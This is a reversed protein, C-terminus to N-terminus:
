SVKMHINLDSVEAPCIKCEYEMPGDHDKRDHRLYKGLNTFKLGCDPCIFYKANNVHAMKHKEMRSPKRTWFDCTPRPCELLKEDKKAILRFHTKPKPSIPTEPLQIRLSTTTTPEITTLLLNQTFDLNNKSQQQEPLPTLCVIDDDDQDPDSTTVELKKVEHLSNHDLQPFHLIEENEEFSLGNFLFEDKKQQQQQQELHPTKSAIQPTKSAEINFLFPDDKSITVRENESLFDVDVEKNTVKQQQQESPNNLNITPLLFSSVENQHVEEVVNKTVVNDHQCTTVPSTVQDKTTCIIEEYQCGKSSVNNQSTVDDVHDCNVEVNNHDKVEKPSTVPDCNVEVNNLEKVEKLCTMQDCNVEENPKKIEKPSTVLDCNKVEDKIMLPCESSVNKTAEHSTVTAVLSPTLLVEEKQHQDGDGNVFVPSKDMEKNNLFCKKKNKKKKKKGKKSTVKNKKKDKTNNCETFREIEGKSLRKLKIVPVNSGNKPIKAHSKSDNKPIKAHSKPRIKMKLPKKQHLCKKPVLSVSIFPMKKQLFEADFKSRKNKKGSSKIEDENEDSSSSALDVFTSEDQEKSSSDIKYEAEQNSGPVFRRILKLPNLQHQQQSSLSAM